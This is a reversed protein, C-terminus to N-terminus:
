ATTWTKANRDYRITTGDAFAVATNSQGVVTLVNGGVGLVMGSDTEQAFTLNGATANYLMILDDDEVNCAIDNGEGAGFLFYDTGAGGYLVDDGFGGWLASNNGGSIIVNNLADGFLANAGGSCSGDLVEIGSYFGNGLNVSAGAEFVHLADVNNGGLYIIGDGEYTFDNTLNTNGVKAYLPNFGDASFKIVNDAATDDTAATFVSGDAMPMAVINQERAFGTVNWGILNLMDGAVGTQFNLATDNGGGTLYWFNDYGAGGQLVDDGGAGGWMTSGVIGAIIYNNNLNGGLFRADRMESTDLVIAAANAYTSAAGTFPNIDSLFVDEGISGSIKLTVGDFTVSPVSARARAAIYDLGALSDNGQATSTDISAPSTTATTVTATSTTATTTDTTTATAAAAVTTDTAVATSASPDRGESAQKALYRLAIYGAAYSTLGTGGMATQLSSADNSLAVIQDYRKDDIGHVLEASGEKFSVPLNSYYDVNASMVAHVLEHAITRDLTNLAASSGVGNPNTTDINEYYHMNISLRLESSKQTASYYSVSMRGDASNYFSIDLTKVTTGAENFNMGFSSNILSLSEKVWWTYLAGVIWQESASLNDFNNINVTLGNVTFSSSAPYTWDGSEPVISDATKTTGGGADSGTIAGTDSNNLIIGCKEQLFGNGDGAYAACDSAMTSILESWSKFKSVSAVAEDLAATGSKTTNDLTSMFNKIVSQASM